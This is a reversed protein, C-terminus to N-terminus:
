ESVEAGPKADTVLEISAMTLRDAIRGLEELRDRHTEGHIFISAIAGVGDMVMVALYEGTDMVKIDEARVRHVSVAGMDPM